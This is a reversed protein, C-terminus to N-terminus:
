DYAAGTVGFRFGQEYRDTGYWWGARVRTPVTYGGFTGETETEVGFPVHQYRKDATQNSWRQISSSLLRGDPGVAVVLRTSEGDTTTTAAFRNADVPEIAAGAGPLLASPLWMYEVVLRGIASRVYDPGADRVVPVLGFAALRMRGQGAAVLDSGDMPLGGVRAHVKWVFGRGASLVQEATFPAWDSGVLLSGEQALHVRSALPTGPRIAHLFYRRAPEPLDTVLGESFVHRSAPARELDRWVDDVYRDDALRLAVLVGLAGVAVVLVAVGVRGLAGTALRPGARHARVTTGSTAVAAEEM